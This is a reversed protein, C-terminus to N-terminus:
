CNKPWFFGGNKWHDICGKDFIINQGVWFFIILVVLTMTLKVLFLIIWLDELSDSIVM